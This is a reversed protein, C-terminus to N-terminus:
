ADLRDLRDAAAIRARSQRRKSPISRPRCDCAVAAGAHGARHRLAAAHENRPRPPSNPPSTPRRM